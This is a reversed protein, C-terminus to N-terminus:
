RVFVLEALTFEIQLIKNKQKKQRGGKESILLM